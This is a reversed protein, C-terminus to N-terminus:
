RPGRSRRCRSGCSRRRWSHSANPTLGVRDPDELTNKAHVDDDHLTQADVVAVQGLHSVDVAPEVAETLSRNVM